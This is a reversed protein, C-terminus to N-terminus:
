KKDSLETALAQHKAVTENTMNGKDSLKREHHTPNAFIRKLHAVESSNTSMILCQEQFYLLVWASIIMPDKPIEFEKPRTDDTQM